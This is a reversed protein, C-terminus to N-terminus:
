TVSRRGAGSTRAALNRWNIGDDGPKVPRDLASEIPRRLV